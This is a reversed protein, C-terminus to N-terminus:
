SQSPLTAEEENTESISSSSTSKKTAKTTKQTTKKSYNNYVKAVSSYTTAPVTTPETTEVVPAVGVTISITTGVKVKSGSKTDQYFVSGVYTNNPKTEIEYDLGYEELTSIADSKERGKLNPVEVMNNIDAKTSAKKGAYLKVKVIKSDSSIDKPKIISDEDLKNLLSGDDYYNGVVKLEINKAKLEKEAEEVTKGYLSISKVEDDSASSSKISDNSANNLMVFTVAIGAILLCVIVTVISIVKKKTSKAKRDSSISKGKVRKIKRKGTLLDILLSASQIRDVPNLNLTNMIANAGYPPTLPAYKSIDALNDNDERQLANEPRRATLCFYMTAGISYIDSWPGVKGNSRQMESPSYGQTYIAKKNTSSTHLELNFDILKVKNNTILINKPSIDGHVIGNNHLISLAKL